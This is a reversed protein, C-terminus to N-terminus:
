RRRRVLAAGLVVFVGATGPSPFVAAADALTDDDGAPANLQPLLTLFTAPLPLTPDFLANSAGGPLAVGRLSLLWALMHAITFLLSM